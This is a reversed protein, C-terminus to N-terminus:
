LHLAIRSLIEKGLCLVGSLCSYLDVVNHLLDGRLIREGDVEKPIQTMGYLCLELVHSLDRLVPLVILRQILAHPFKLNCFLIELISRSPLKASM